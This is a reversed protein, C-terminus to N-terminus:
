HPRVVINVLKNKVVIKKAVTQGIIHRQVNADAFAMRELEQEGTDVGVRIKSRVKGNVQLIVEVLQEVTKAADYTPWPHYALTGKHGLREWLEEAIHPAFPALLLIFQEM